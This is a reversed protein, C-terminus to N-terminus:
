RFISPLFLHIIKKSAACGNLPEKDVMGPRIPIQFTNKLSFPFVPTDPSFGRQTLALVLLLSERGQPCVLSLRTSLIVNRRKGHFLLM